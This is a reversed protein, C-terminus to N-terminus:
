PNLSGTLDNRDKTLSVTSKLCYEIRISPTNISTSRIAPIVVTLAYATIVVTSFNTMRSADLLGRATRVTTTEHIRLQSSIARLYVTISSAKPNLARLDIRVLRKRRITM